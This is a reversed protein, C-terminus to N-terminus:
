SREQIILEDNMGLPSSIDMHGKLTERTAGEVQIMVGTLSPINKVITNSISYITMMESASGGPHHDVLTKRFNVVALDREGITVNILEAETPITRMGGQRSGEILATVLLAAREERSDSKTMYRVEPVLFRENADAFFLTVQEKEQRATVTGTRTATGTTPPYLSDFLTVFFFILFGALVAVIIGLMGMRRKQRSKKARLQKAKKEKKNAM